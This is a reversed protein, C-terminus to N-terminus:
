NHLFDEMISLASLAAQYRPDGKSNMDKQQEPDPLLNGKLFNIALAEPHDQFLINGHKDEIAEVIGDDSFGVVRFGLEELNSLNEQDNSVVGGHADPFFLSYWGNADPEVHRSVIKALKSGPVIRLRHLVVDQGHPDPMSVNHADASTKSGVINHVRVVKIGMAHMIGQMGGCVGMIRISPNERVIEAIAATVLQRNPTPSFPEADVNYFNGPIFVRTINNETIFSAVIAKVKKKVAAQLNEGDEGVEALAEKMITDLDLMANYDIRVVRAGLGTFLEYINYSFTLEEPHSEKATQLFGVVVQSQAESVLASKAFLPALLLFSSCLALSLFRQFGVLSHLLASM